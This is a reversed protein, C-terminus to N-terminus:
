TIKQPCFVIIFLKSSYIFSQEKFARDYVSVHIIGKEGSDRNEENPLVSDALRAIVSSVHASERVEQTNLHEIIRQNENWVDATVKLHYTPM